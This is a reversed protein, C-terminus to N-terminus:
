RRSPHRQGSVRDIVAHEAVPHGRVSGEPLDCDGTVVRHLLLTALRYEDEIIRLHL